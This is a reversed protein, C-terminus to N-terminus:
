IVHIMASLSWFVASYENENLISYRQKHDISERLKLTANFHDDIEYAMIYVDIM